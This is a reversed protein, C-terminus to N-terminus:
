TATNYITMYWSDIQGYTGMQIGSNLILVIKLQADGQVFTLLFVTLKEHPYKQPSLFYIDTM